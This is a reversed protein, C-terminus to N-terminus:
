GTYADETSNIFDHRELYACDEDNEPIEIHTLKFNVPRTGNNCCAIMMCDDNTWGHMIASGAPAHGGNVMLQISLLESDGHLLHYRISQGSGENFHCLM